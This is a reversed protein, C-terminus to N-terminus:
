PTVGKPDPRGGAALAASRSVGGALLAATVTAVIVASRTRM